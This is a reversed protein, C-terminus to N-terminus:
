GLHRRCRVTVAADAAEVEVDDTYARVITLGRGGPRLPDHPDPDFVPAEGAPVAGSVELVVTDGAETWADAEPVDDVGLAARSANSILESFVVALEQRAGDDIGADGLWDEFSRRSTAVAATEPEVSM